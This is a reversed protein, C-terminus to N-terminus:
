GKKKIANQFKRPFKKTKRLFKKTKRTKRLFKKTKKNSKKQKITKRSYKKGGRPHIEEYEELLRKILICNYNDKIECNKMKYLIDEQIILGKKILKILLPEYYNANFHTKQNLIRDIIDNLAREKDTKIREIDIKEDIPIAEINSIDIEMEDESDVDEAIIENKDNM